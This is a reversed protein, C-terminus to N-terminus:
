KKYNSVISVTGDSSILKLVDHTVEIRLYAFFFDKMTNNILSILKAAPLRSIMLLGKKLVLVFVDDLVAGLGM